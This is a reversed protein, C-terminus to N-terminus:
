EEMVLRLIQLIGKLQRIKKCINRIFFTKDAKTKKVLKRSLFIGSSSMEDSSLQCISRNTDVINTDAFIRTM